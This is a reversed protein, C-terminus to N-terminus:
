MASIINNLMSPNGVLKIFKDDDLYQRIRNHILNRFGNYGFLKNELEQESMIDIEYLDIDALIEKYEKERLLGYDRILFYLRRIIEKMKATDYKGCIQKAFIDRFKEFLNKLQEGYRTLPIDVVDTNYEGKIYELASIKPNKVNNSLYGTYIKTKSIDYGYKQLKLLLETLQKNDRKTLPINLGEPRYIIYDNPNIGYKQYVEKLLPKGDEHEDYKSVPIFTNNKASVLYIDSPKYLM